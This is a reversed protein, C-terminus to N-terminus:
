GGIAYGIMFMGYCMAFICLAGILDTIFGKM